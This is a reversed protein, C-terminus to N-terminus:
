DIAFCYIRGAGGRPATNNCGGNEHASNWSTYTGSTSGGPGLGDSHGVQAVDAAATSTWDKCTDGVLLTGDAKSGTLIDHELPGPSNPWQGNIPNGHEDIFILHDGKRAHLETLNMAVLDGHVNRWPGSGIRDKANVPLNDTGHEASLYTHWTKNGRGITAALDQCRKDAGTLGGLNGTTNKMSTVFFTTVASAADGVDVDVGMVADGPEGADTDDGGSGGANSADEGESADPTTGGGGVANGGTGEAGGSSTQGGTGSAGGGGTAGASANDDGGCGVAAMGLFAALLWALRRHNM